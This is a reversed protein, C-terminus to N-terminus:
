EAKELTNKLKVTFTRGQSGETNVKLIVSSDTKEVEISPDSSSVSLGPQNVEITITSQAQTPDSVALTWEGRDKELLVSAPNHSTLDDISGPNWFNVATLHLRKEKVAQIDATNKLVIVDQHQNYYQTEAANKNPLLIYSYSADQPRSGHEFALSLFSNTIPETTGGPNIDKWSGTRSERLGYLDAGKPFVYGIDSGPVNGELNVWSVNTMTESWGLGNTKNQGDVILRNDGSDRLKRNEVITEVRAEDSSSIGAGLAVIEDDFLFWSKKGQLSSGTTEQLSFDMGVAGYKNNLSAGGVWNKPNRYFQWNKLIGQSGDTTTGPLRLSDVTPWYGGSFQTLDNNYLSTAGIGTYWGKPNENNGYEFASIRDSFMAIGFGFGPRLHVARDMNAFVQNKILEGRPAISSDSMLAEILRIDYLSLGTKYDAYTTDSIIWEKVMRKIKLAEDAPAGEAVRLLGVVMNRGVSHDNTLPRAIERGRVMDMIGGRYILPEFSDSVWRYVNALQPDTIKWPSDQLLYMLDGVRSILSLGYGGTYAVQTHQIFSGDEYFGDGSKVYPLAPSVADRGLSAKQSINGIMGRVATVMAKDLLNAGTEQANNTTRYYPTPVFRDVARMYNQIQADSLKDYMLVVVDNLAQPGSIEWHFWNDYESSRENYRNAYM